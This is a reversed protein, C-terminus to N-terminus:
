PPRFLAVMRTTYRFAQDADDDLVILRMDGLRRLEYAGSAKRSEVHKAIGPVDLRM